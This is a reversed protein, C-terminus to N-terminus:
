TPQNQPDKWSRLSALRSIWSTVSKHFQKYKQRDGGLFSFAASFSSTDPSAAQQRDEAGQLAGAAGAQVGGAVAAAPHLGPPLFAAPPRQKGHLRRRKPPSNGDAAVTEAAPSLSELDSRTSSTPTGFSEDAMQPFDHERELALFDDVEQSCPGPALLMDNATGHLCPVSEPVTDTADSDHSEM